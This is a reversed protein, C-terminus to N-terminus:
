GRGDPLDVACWDALQPVALEAVQQLTSRTTWRPPSCRAPRAGAPAPHARRAQGRHRGRDRQGGLAAAGDRDRVATAKIVRWREEGTAPRRARVLLPAAHEGACCAAAPCTTSRAAALRGRPVDRLADVIQRPRRRSCSRPPTSARAARGRRRQRVRAPRRRGPGDGGRGPRRARRDLQAEITELETSLGANDLALAARGALVRALARDEPEFRRGTSRHVAFGLTGLERGRARLPVRISSVDESDRALAAELASAHPGHARTGLRRTVGGHVVDVVLLDAFAPVIADGLREVTQELTVSDVILDGVSTILGLRARSADLRTRTRAALVAFSAGAAVVALRLLYEVTGFNDNWAGSLACAAVALVGVAATQRTTGRLATLFPAIVVTSSIIRGPGWAIDLAALALCLVGGALAPWWGSWPPSPKAM